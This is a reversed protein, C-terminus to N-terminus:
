MYRIKRGTGGNPRGDSLQSGNRFSVHRQKVTISINVQYFFGGQYIKIPAPVFVKAAAHRRIAQGEKLKPREM